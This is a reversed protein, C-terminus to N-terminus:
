KVSTRLPLLARLRPDRLFLGLWALIPILAQLVFNDGVRLHTAIAGGMYGTVLIAGLVATQPIAYLLACSLELIGLGFALRMPWGLHEFGETVEKSPPMFKMVASMALMLVPLVSIVRGTWLAAKSPGEPRAYELPAVPRPTDTVVQSM